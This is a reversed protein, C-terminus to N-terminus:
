KASGQGYFSEFVFIFTSNKKTEKKNKASLLKHNYRNDFYLKKSYIKINCSVLILLSENKVKQFKSLLYLFLDVLSSIFFILDYLIQRRYVANGSSSWRRDFTKYFIELIM